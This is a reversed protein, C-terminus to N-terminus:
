DSKQDKKNEEQENKIIDYLPNATIPKSNESISKKNSIKGADKNLSEVITSDEYILSIVLYKSRTKFSFFQPHQDPKHATQGAINEIDSDVVTTISHNVYTYNENKLFKSIESVASNNQNIRGSEGIKILFLKHKIM